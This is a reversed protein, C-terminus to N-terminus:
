APHLTTNSRRRAAMGILGFGGILLTWEAPEPVNGAVFNDFTVNDYKIYFASDAPDRLTVSLITDSGTYGFFNTQGAVALSAVVDPSNALDITATFLGAGSSSGFDFGFSTAAVEMTFRGGLQDFMGSASNNLQYGSPADFIYTPCFPGIGRSDFNVGQLSYGTCSYYGGTAYTQYNATGVLGTFTIKTSTAGLVSEFDTRSSYSAAGASTGALLTAALAARTISKM